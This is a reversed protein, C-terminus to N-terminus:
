HLTYLLNTLSYQHLGCFNFKKCFNFELPNVKSSLEGEVSIEPLLNGMHNEDGYV